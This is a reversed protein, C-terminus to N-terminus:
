SELKKVNWSYIYYFLSSFEILQHLLHFYPLIPDMHINSHNSVHWAYVIDKKKTRKRLHHVGHIYGM